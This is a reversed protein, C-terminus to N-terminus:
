STSQASALRRWRLEVAILLSAYVILWAALGATVAPFSQEFLMLATLGSLLMVGWSILALRKHSWGSRILRQYAHDRHAQWVRDGRLARRLLTVTADVIFYSFVLLPFWLPWTGNQWGLFGITAALFGLPVSGVDGMFIRAPPFNFILFALVGATLCFCIVALQQDGATWAAVAYCSFGIVAMGGALGDSGDMFNYLNTMWAIGLTVAIWGLFGGSYIVFTSVLAAILHGVLRWQVPLGWRDDILSLIALGMAMGLVAPEGGFWFAGAIAWPLFFV